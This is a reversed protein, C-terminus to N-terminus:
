GALAPTRHVEERGTYAHVFAARVKDVPVTGDAGVMHQLILEIGNEPSGFARMLRTFEERDLIGNGDTDAVVVFSEVWSKTQQEVPGEGGLLLQESARTYEEQTLVGDRDTDVATSLASWFAKAATAARTAESSDPAHGFTGLIRQTVKTFDDVTVSGSGDTDLIAYM